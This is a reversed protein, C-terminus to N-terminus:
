NQKKGRKKITKKLKHLARMTKKLEEPYRHMTNRRMNEAQTILEMNDLSFNEKNRDKIRIVHGKPIPGNAEEWVLKHKRIWKKHGIKVLVYGEKDLRTDGEKKTNHPLQGKKFSTVNAGIYGKVNKNWAVQGKKYRTEAGYKKLREAELSLLYDIFEQSKKIGHSYAQGYVSSASRNLINCLEETRTHPYLERLIRMEEETWKRKTNM